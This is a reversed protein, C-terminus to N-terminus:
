IIWLGSAVQLHGHRVNFLRRETHMTGDRSASTRIIGREVRRSDHALHEELVTWAEVRVGNPDELDCIRM